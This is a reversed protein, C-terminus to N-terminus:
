EKKLKPINYSVGFYFSNNWKSYMPVTTITRPLTLNSELNEVQNSIVKTKATAMGLSIAVINKKGFIVSGGTLYRTKGDFPSLAAGLNFGLAINSKVKYSIHSLAGLSIDNLNENEQEVFNFRDRICM